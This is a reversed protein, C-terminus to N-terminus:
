QGHRSIEKHLQIRDEWSRGHLDISHKEVLMEGKGDRRIVGDCYYIEPYAAAVSKQYAVHEDGYVGALFEATSMPKFINTYTLSTGEILQPIYRTFMPAGGKGLCMQNFVIVGGEALHYNAICLQEKFVQQGDVGGRAHQPIKMEISAPYLHYPAYIGIAKASRYEASNMNYFEHRLEFDVGNARANQRAMEIARPSKDIAVVNQANLNKIALLSWVSSGTGVDLFDVSGRVRKIAQELRTKVYEWMFPQEEYFMAMVNDAGESRERDIPDVTLTIGAFSAQSDFMRPSENTMTNSRVSLAKRRSQSHECGRYFPLKQSFSGFVPCYENDANFKGDPKCWLVRTIAALKGWSWIWVPSRDTYIIGRQCM